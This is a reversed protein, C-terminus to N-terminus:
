VIPVLPPPYRALEDWSQLPFIGLGEESQVQTRTARFM